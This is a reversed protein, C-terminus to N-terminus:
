KSKKNVRGCGLVIWASSWGGLHWLSAPKNWPKRSCLWITGDIHAWQARLRATSKQRRATSFLSYLRMKGGPPPIVTEWVSGNLWQEIIIGAVWWGHTDCAQWPVSHLWSRTLYSHFFGDKLHDNKVRPGTTCVCDGGGGKRPVFSSSCATIMQKQQALAYIHSSKVFSQWQLFNEM